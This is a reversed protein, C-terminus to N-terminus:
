RKHLKYNIYLIDKDSLIRKKTSYLGFSSAFTRFAKSLENTQSFENISNYEDITIKSWTNGFEDRFEDRFEQM